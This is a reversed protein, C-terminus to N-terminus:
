KGFRRKRNKYEALAGQFESLTFEPWMKESFYLESYGAYWTLFGSLRHEGSTRIILHPDPLDAPLDLAARFSHEDVPEGADVLKQAARILEDRGDYGALFILSKNTYNATDKELKNMIAIMNDPFDDRRGAFVIRIKQQKALPLLLKHNKMMLEFLETKEKETRDFNYLSFAYFTLQKIGSKFAYQIIEFARKVGEAHGEWSKKGKADAWRRNGDPVIAIHM